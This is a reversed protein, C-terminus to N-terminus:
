KKLLWYTDDEQRAAKLQATAEYFNNGVSYAVKTLRTGKEVLIAADPFKAKLHSAASAINKDEAFAGIVIYYSSSSSSASPVVVKEVAPEEKVEPLAPTNVVELPIPMIEPETTRFISSVTNLVSAEDLHLPKIEVGTRMLQVVSVLGAILLIGAALRWMHKISKTEKRMPIVKPTTDVTKVRVIPMATITRLGFSAKLYNVTEEPTFQIKAEVNNQFKGIGNLRVEEGRQLLANTSSVWSYVNVFAEDFAIKERTAIYNLLLGDNTRLNTNFSIAKAPPEITNQVPDIEAPKYNCVFGGFGPIIVCDHEFLLEAIYKSIDM